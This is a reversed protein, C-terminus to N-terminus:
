TPKPTLDSLTLVDEVVLKGEDVDAEGCTDLVCEEVRGDEVMAVVVLEPEDEVPGAVAVDVPTSSLLGKPCDFLTDAAGTVVVYLTNHTMNTANTTPSAKYNMIDKQLSCQM